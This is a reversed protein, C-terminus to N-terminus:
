CRKIQECTNCVSGNLMVEGQCYFEEFNLFIGVVLVFLAIVFLVVSIVVGSLLLM